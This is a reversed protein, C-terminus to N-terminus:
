ENKLDYEEKLLNILNSAHLRQQLLLNLYYVRINYNISVASNYFEQILDGKQKLNFPIAVGGNPPPVWNFLKGGIDFFNMDDHTYFERNFDLIWNCYTYNFLSDLVDKNKVLRLSGSSKMQELAADNSHFIPTAVCKQYFSLAKKLVNTDTIDYQKQKILSDMMIVREISGNIIISLQATDSKLNDVIIQMNRKEVESDDRNERVNEAIFGLTVALFIMLFELFYEKFKKKEVHPHHHVEM